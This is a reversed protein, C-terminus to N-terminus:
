NVESNMIHIRVLYPDGEMDRSIKVVIPYASENIMDVKVLEKISDAIKEWVQRMEETIKDWEPWKGESGPKENPKLIIAREYAVQGLTKM